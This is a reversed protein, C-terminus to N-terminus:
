RVAYPLWGHLRTGTGPESHVHFQGGLAAVRAQMSTLGFSGQAAAQLREAESSGRGDDEISFHLRGNELAFALRVHAAGAHAAVNDLAQQVVRYLAHRAGPSLATDAEPAIDIHADVGTRARFHEVLTELPRALGEELQLPALNNRIQRVTQAATEVEALCRALVTEAEAPNDRIAGRSVELYFPLSGLFQQVTDHLEQAIKFREREQADAIQHPVQHLQEVQQATLLFLAAQQAILDVVTLDREDFIEEDWRKGLGLLGVPKEHTNLPTIVEIAGAQQLPALWDPPATEGGLLRLPHPLAAVTPPLLKGPIAAPREGGPLSAQPLHEGAIGVLKFIKENEDWLWVVARELEMNKVLANAIVGPLATLDVEGVTQRAFQQVAEYSRRDWQFLRSFAGFWASQTSWFMGSLLAGLFIPVFPTWTLANAWAPDALRLLWAGFSAIIATSALMFVGVLSPHPSQFTQYRLIVFAFSLPVTLVLYRLDLGSTFYSASAQSVVRLVVVLIYPMAFAVGWFLFTVQRRLRRSRSRRAMLWLLRVLFAVVGLGLTGIVLINGAASLWNALAPTRGQWRLAMSLVFLGAVVAMCLYLGTVWGFTLRRIKIPFLLTLHIFSAGIFASSIAWGTLNLRALADSEPFLTPVSLWISAASLCTSLAFLRNVPDDPRARYVILALWWFGFGSILDPLKIDLLTSLSIRQLPSDLELTKGARVVTLRVTEQGQQWAQAYRTRASSDYPHGELATLVDEYRLSTRELWWPPTSAEVRWQNWAHNRCAYFGGFPEGIESLIEGAAILGLLLVAGMLTPLWHKRWNLTM